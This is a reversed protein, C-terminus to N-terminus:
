KERICLHVSQLTRKTIDKLTGFMETNWVNTGRKRRKPIDSQLSNSSHALLAHSYYGWLKRQTLKKPTPFLERLLMWHKWTVLHLRQNTRKTEASYLIRM